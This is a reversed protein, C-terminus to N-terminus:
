PIETFEKSGAGLGGVAPMGDIKVEGIANDGTAADWVGENAFRIAYEPRAALSAAEDPLWLSLRYKGTEMSAPVSLRVTFKADAGGEWRRPDVSTLRASVRKKGNSLVVHVPRRNFPAAYGANKLQVTLKMETGPRVLGPYTAETLVLRYGLEKRIRELTGDKEWADLTAKPYRLHLYSAHLRALEAIFDAPAPVPGDSTEGGYPVFRTETSVWEKWTKVPDPYTGLDSGGVFLADNHHGVRARPTDKFAEAPQLAGGGLSKQKFNPSRVQVSRSAPLAALLATLIDKRHVPDDLGNTSGHWEGWAGIFGAQMVAIVDAHAELVPKLQAIHKLITAKPADADGLGTSYKFRLVTKLGAKRLAQFGEDLKQLFAADISGNRYPALSIGSYVLTVGRDRYAAFNRVTSVDAFLILGREPNLIRQDTPAFKRVVADGKSLVQIAGLLLACSVLPRM